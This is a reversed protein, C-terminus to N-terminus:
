HSLVERPIRPMELDRIWSNHRFWSVPVTSLDVTPDVLQQAPRGNLSVSTIASVIPHRRYEKEWLAAVRQAYRRLFFAQISVHVVKSPTLDKTTNWWLYPAQQANQQSDFICIQPLLEKIQAGLPSTYVVLVDGTAYGDSPRQPVRGTAGNKWAKRNIHNPPVGPSDLMAKDEIVFRDGAGPRIGELALPELAQLAAGLPGGPDRGEHERLMALADRVSTRTEPPSLEGREIQGLRVALAGARTGEAERGAGQLAV